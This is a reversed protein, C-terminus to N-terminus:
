CRRFCSFWRFLLQWIWHSCNIFEIGSFHFSVTLCLLLSAFSRVIWWWWKIFPELIVIRSFNIDLSSYWITNIFNCWNHIKFYLKFATDVVNKSVQKTHRLFFLKLILFLKKNWRLSEKKWEQSWWINESIQIDHRWWIGLCSVRFM